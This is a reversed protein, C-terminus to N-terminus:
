SVAEDDTPFGFSPCVIGGIFENVEHMVYTDCMLLLGHALYFNVYSGALRTGPHRPNHEGWLSRGECEEATYHMPPPIPIKIIKFSRGAADTSTSLINWAELSIEHQPDNTDDTWALLVVGPKVFCAFNDIHGNTDEDGYLGKPLWIVKRVGTIKYHM